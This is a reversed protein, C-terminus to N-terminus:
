QLDKAGNYAAHGQFAARMSSGPVCLLSTRHWRAAGAAVVHGQPASRSSERWSLPQLSKPISPPSLHPPPRIGQERGAQPTPAAIVLGLCLFQACKQHDVFSTHHKLFPPTTPLPLRKGRLVWLSYRPIPPSPRSRQPPIPLAGSWALAVFSGVQYPPLRRGDMNKYVKVTVQHSAGMPARHHSSLLTLLPPCPVM